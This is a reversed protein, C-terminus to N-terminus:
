PLNTTSLIEVRDAKWGEGVVNVLTLQLVYDITRGTPNERSQTTQTVSAIAIAESPSRFSVDPGDLIQGRSSSSTEELAPGLNPILERYDDRFDGTSLALIRDAVEDINTADYNLLLSMVTESSTEVQAARAALFDGVEGSSTDLNRVLLFGLTGASILAVVLAAILVPVLLRRRSKPETSTSRGELVAPDSTV